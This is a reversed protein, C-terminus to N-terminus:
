AVGVGLGILTFMNLSRNVVSRVAREFFPWGAWLVVPTSLIMELWTWARPSALQELPRGPILDGMAAVFVPVTLAVAVWFRRRMDALEPNEEEAFSVTRPELAMGCIPCAGPESRVIQPHMPCVYETKAGQVPPVVPELAMGCKPCAGFNKERVEPHMPCTYEGEQRAGQTRTQTTQQTTKQGAPAEPAIYRQPEARFKELCRPNCFYYTRGAYEHRGAATHPNVSMGCVPDRETQGDPAHHPGNGALIPLAQPAKPKPMEPM